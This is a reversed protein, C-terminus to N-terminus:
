LVIGKRYLKDNAIKTDYYYSAFSEWSNRSFELDSTTLYVGKNEIDKNIFEFKKLVQSNINDFNDNTYKFGNKSYTYYQELSDVKYYIVFSDNDNILFDKINEKTVIDHLKGCNIKIGVVNSDVTKLYDVSWEFVDELQYDDCFGYETKSVGFTRKNYRLKWTESTTYWDFPVGLSTDDHFKSPEYDLLIIDKKDFDYKDVLYEVVEARHCQVYIIHTINFLLFITAIVTVITLIIRKGKKM